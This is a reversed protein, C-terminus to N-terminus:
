PDGRGDLAKTRAEAPVRGKPGLSSVDLSRPRLDQAATRLIGASLMERPGGPERAQLHYDRRSM